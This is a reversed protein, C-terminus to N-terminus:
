SEWASTEPETNTPTPAADSPPEEHPHGLRYARIAECDGKFLAVYAEVLGDFVTENPLSELHLNGIMAASAIRASVVSMINIADSTLEIGAEHLKATMFDDVQRSLDNILKEFRHGEEMM